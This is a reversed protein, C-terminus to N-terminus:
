RSFWDETVYHYFTMEPCNPILGSASVREGANTAIPDISLILWERDKTAYKLAKEMEPIVGPFQALLEDSAGSMKGLQYNLYKPVDILLIKNKGGNFNLIFNFDIGEQVQIKNSIDLKILVHRTYDWIESKDEETNETYFDEIIEYDAPVYQNGDWYETAFKEARKSDESFSIFHKLSCGGDKAVFNDAVHSVSADFIGLRQVRYPDGGNIFDASLGHQYMSIFNQVADKRGNEINQGRYLVMRM